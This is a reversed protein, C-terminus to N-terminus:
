CQSGTAKWLYDTSHKPKRYSIAKIVYAIKQAYLELFVAIEKYNLTSYTKQKHYGKISKRYPRTTSIYPGSAEPFVVRARCAIASACFCPPLV